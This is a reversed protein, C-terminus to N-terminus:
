CTLVQTPEILPESGSHLHAKFTNIPHSQSFAGLTSGAIRPDDPYQYTEVRCRYANTRLYITYTKLALRRQAPTEALCRMDRFTATACRQGFKHMLQASLSEQVPALSSGRRGVGSLSLGKCRRTSKCKGLRAPQQDRDPPNNSDPM